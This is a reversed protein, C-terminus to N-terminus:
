RTKKASRSTRRGTTGARGRTNGARKSARGQMKAATGRAGKKSATGRAPTKKAVARRTRRKPEARAAPVIGDPHEGVAEPSGVAASFLPALVSVDTGEALHLRMARRGHSTLAQLDGIAQAQKLTGFTYEEGPISADKPDTSTVQIFVGENAGGKHLQGTSHLFRPGYGLTTAVHYRSRLEVRSATLSQDSAHSHTLYAMLAIYDHPRTQDLFERMYDALRDHKGSAGNWYLSIGNETLIPSSEPLKCGEKYEELVRNTNAKSEAVNPEDFANIGMVAGAIATAYEWRFFEGGLDYKDELHIHIVPQGANELAAVGDDLASNNGPDLRLYVFVRDDGYVEPAGLPEDAVPM